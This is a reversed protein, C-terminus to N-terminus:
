RWPTSARTPGQKTRPTLQGEQLKEYSLDMAEKESAGWPAEGSPETRRQVSNRVARPVSKTSIRSVRTSDTTMHYWKVKATMETASSPIAAPASRQSRRNGCHREPLIDASATPSATPPPRFRNLTAMTNGIARMVSKR